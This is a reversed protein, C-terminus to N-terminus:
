NGRMASAAALVSKVIKNYSGCRCLNGSLGEKVQQETPNPTKDLLAKAQMIMGPTCFGCQMGDHEIFAKQLSHLEGTSPDRLGEITTIEKGDCEVTLTACSLIPKRNMIVTCAGCEGNDCGIKTGTLGLTERLTLALTHWAMVQYGVSLEVPKGNVILRIM